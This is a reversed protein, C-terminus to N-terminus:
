RLLFHRYGWGKEQKFCEDVMELSEQGLWGVARDRGPYYHYGAAGGEIVEGRM